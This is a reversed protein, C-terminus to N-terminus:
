RGVLRKASRVSEYRIGLTGLLYLAAPWWSLGYRLSDRACARAHDPSGRMWFEHAVEAIRERLRRAEAPTPSGGDLVKRFIKVHGLLINDGRPAILKSTLSASSVRYKVSPVDSFHFKYRGAIRLMMEWDEYVMTEDYRGVAEQAERRILMTMGPIFNGDILQTLIRGSPPKLGRRHSEIFLGPMPRSEEDMLLADSYLVAYDEPLKEMLEVHRALKGPLWADDSSCPAIYKGRARSYGDNVTAAVGMNREHRVFSHPGDYRSLWREIVAASDDTSCDDTIILELNPYNQALVGDLCEEIYRGHNYCMIVASVLPAAEESPQVPTPQATM